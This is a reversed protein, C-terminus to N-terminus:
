HLKLHSSLGIDFSACTHWSRAGMFLTIALPGANVKVESGFNIYSHYVKLDRYNFTPTFSFYYDHTVTKNVPKYYQIGVALAQFLYNSKYDENINENIKCTLFSYGAFPYFCSNGFNFPVRVQVDVETCELNENLSTDKIFDPNNSWLFIPKRRFGMNLQAKIVPVNEIYEHFLIGSFDLVKTTTQESGGELTMVMNQYGKTTEFTWEIGSIPSFNYIETSFAAATYFTLVFLIIAPRLISKRAM